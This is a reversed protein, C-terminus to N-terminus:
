QGVGIVSYQDRKFHDVPIIQSARVEITVGPVTVDFGELSYGDEQGEPMPYHEIVMARDGKKLGYAPLNEILAVWTYLEIM